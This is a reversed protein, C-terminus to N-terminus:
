TLGNNSTIHRKKNKKRNCEKTLCTGFDWDTWTVFATNALSSKTTPKPFVLSYKQISESLWEDFLTLAPQLTLSDNIKEQTIGTFNICFESLKPSETPLIHQHFESITKQTKLDILVAPFEIIEPQRWKGDGKKWCTAEFDIVILYKCNQKV